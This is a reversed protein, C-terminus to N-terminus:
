SLTPEGLGAFCRGNAGSLYTLEVRLRFVDVVPVEIAIPRGVRLTVRDSIEKGDGLLVGEIECGVSSDTIGFNASLKSYRRGLNFDVWSADDSSNCYINAVLQHDFCVFIATRQRVSNMQTAESYVYATNGTEVVDATSLTYPGLTSPTTIRPTTDTANPGGGSSPDDTVATSSGSDVSPREVDTSTVPQISTTPEDTTQSATTSTESGGSADDSGFYRPIGILAAAVISGLVTM